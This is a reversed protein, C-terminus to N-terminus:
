SASQPYHRAAVDPHARLRSKWANEGYTAFIPNDPDATIGTRLGTPLPLHPMRATVAPNFFYPVSIRDAGRVRNVVRHETAHLYGDTGVELMEGLNVIFAGPVPPVDVWEDAGPPLVQLGESDPDVLLLTLVGSDKHAGVGQESATGAPYRVIKILTAPDTAFAEDFVRPDAGLSRAWSRLLTLSIRSLDADWREMVARLEPLAAPWQNPGLLNRHDPGPGSPAERETGIDIQERWDVAGRTLEGGLRTYGRFHPSNIMAIADKDAQPLAFFARATALVEDIRERRLGHGTLYFFGVDHAAARVAGDFRSPHTDLLSLDLVPIHPHPGGSPHGPSASAAM